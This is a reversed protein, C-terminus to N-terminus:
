KFTHIKASRQFDLIIKIYFFHVKELASTKSHNGSNSLNM